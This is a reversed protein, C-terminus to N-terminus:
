INNEERLKKMLKKDIYNFVTPHRAGKLLMDIANYVIQINDTKSIIGITKGYVSIFAQTKKEIMERSSGEKGIVRGRLRELDNKSRAYDSINILEFDYDDNKILLAIEPNFGRAIAKITKECDWLKLSDKGQLLVIGTSEIDLKCDFAKEIEKKAQAKKGILVAVREEPIKISKQNM